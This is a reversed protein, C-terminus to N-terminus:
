HHFRYAFIVGFHSSPGLLRKQDWLEDCLTVNSHDYGQHPWTSSSEVVNSPFQNVKGHEGSGTRQCLAGVEICTAKRETLHMILVMASM